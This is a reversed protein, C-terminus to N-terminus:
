APTPDSRVITLARNMKQVLLFPLHEVGEAQDVEEYTIYRLGPM